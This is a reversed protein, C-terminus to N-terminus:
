IVQKKLLLMLQGCLLNNNHLQCTPDPRVSFNTNDCCVLPFTVVNTSEGAWEFLQSNNWIPGGEKPSDIISPHNITFWTEHSRTALSRWIHNTTPPQLPFKGSEIITFQAKPTWYVEKNLANINPKSFQYAVGTRLPFFHNGFINRL